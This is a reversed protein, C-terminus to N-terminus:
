EKRTEEVLKTKIRYESVMMRFDDWFRFAYNIRWSSKLNYCLIFVNLTAAARAAHRADVDEAVAVVADSFRDGRCALLPESGTIM